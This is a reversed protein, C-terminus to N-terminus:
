IVFIFSMFHHTKIKLWTFNYWSEKYNFEVSNNVNLSVPSSTHDSTYILYNTREVTNEYKFIKNNSILNLSLLVFLVLCTKKKM